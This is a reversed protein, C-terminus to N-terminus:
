HATAEVEAAYDAVEAFPVFRVGCAELAERSDNEANEGRPDSSVVVLKGKHGEIPREAIFRGNFGLKELKDAWKGVALSESRIYNTVGNQYAADVPFKRRVAPVAIPGPHWLKGVMELRNFADALRSPVPRRTPVGAKLDPDGVLEAYLADLKTAPDDVMVLRPPTLGVADPRSSAFRALDHETALKEAVELRYRLGELASAIRKLDAPKPHFFGKVRELTPSPKLRLWNAQPVFLVVGANAAEARGPDPVYQVVSYAARTTPM